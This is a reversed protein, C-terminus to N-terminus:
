DVVVYIMTTSPQVICCWHRSYHKMMLAIWNPLLRNSMMMKMSFATSDISMSDMPEKKDDNLQVAVAVM